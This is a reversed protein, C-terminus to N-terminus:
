STHPYQAALEDNINKGQDWIVALYRGYKDSKDKTTQILFTDPLRRALWDKAELGATRNAGVIEPTNVGLLRLQVNHAWIGMGLDINARITDGDVVRVLESRYTFSPETVM